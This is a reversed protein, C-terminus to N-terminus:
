KEKTLKQYMKMLEAVCESESNLKGWFGYAQMVAKDNHQHARRLEVPMTLEDYLDALSSDPYLARADLIEQATQAIKVKQEETPTPWPFNNYVIDKSYRYDSKLRGCVTRMWANHVNSTLVGFHYLTANPILFLLDSAIVTNSLFGIPIYRRRESSTKPVAIYESNPQAIQCFLTPMEAFKRTGAAVSNARFDRVSEIRRMVTPCQKLEHPNAGIMWLCWRSKNNIFEYAGLYPRIWKASLPEKKILEDKEEDSLIFGGGDRPMSGFRMQPVDCIPVSRSEIFINPGASLYSNINEVYTARDNDYLIKKGSNVYSFGVVVCHVHAKISAESDWRFTRYAFLITIGRAFLPKWLTVAQQGQCISNTSVYAVNIKTGQIYDTAKYYWASVYDLEGLGKIDGIVSRMDEKQDKDTMMGGVFPPNGMIYNLKDKPVVSEWDLRLANGEVINAYSKLPLFDLNMNVIEETQKMMQSEAIWLATKAVTVAFDNIEIGYFQGISVRIPNVAGMIMQKGLRLKLMENELRRLSLYTETLFNGSGCAPDLFTLSALKNQFETLKQERTKETKISKISDLEARLDDLFLPDIVKHINEISTYHMGGSRRTEPNLTSEFVAGFITPSIESWDFNESAKRLLLSVINENLNPIEINEDAFLGGNVYPFSALEEDMYPDYEKRKDEPMDLVKFLEILAKRLSRIDREAYSKIYDHFKTRNGFLGSDEAYLCFVIRVCLKNLSKLTNDAEPDNYQKLIEDYLIGVLEGAKISIEMEKRVHESGTDVLFQLRYVEKFLDKLLISEPEGTPKEMDYILFERFNCTVIWRPRESYPLEASYRKAQQFPTLYSGDSQRIAKRLDKDASKQEILVHTSEIIGDIFSTHDLMVKDEFRIITEPKEVGLVERLLSLWFAQSEGKEYGKDKWYDSFNKAANKQERETM